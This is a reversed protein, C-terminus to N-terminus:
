IICKKSYLKDMYGYNLLTLGTNLTILHKNANNKM